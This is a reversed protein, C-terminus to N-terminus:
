PGHTAWKRHCLLSYGITKVTDIVQLYVPVGLPVMRESFRASSGLQSEDSEYPCSNRHIREATNM